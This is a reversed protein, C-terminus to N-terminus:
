GKGLVAELWVRKSHAELAPNASVSKLFSLLPSIIIQLFNFSQCPCTPNTLDTSKALWDNLVISPLVLGPSFPLWRSPPPINSRM